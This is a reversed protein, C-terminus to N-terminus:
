ILSMQTFAPAFFAFAGHSGLNRDLSASYGSIWSEGGNRSTGLFYPNNGIYIPEHPAVIYKFGMKEMQSSSIKKRYRPVIGALPKSYGLNKAEELVDSTARGSVPLLVIKYKQGAILQQAEYRDHKLCARAIGGVRYNAEEIEQEGELNFGTIMFVKHGNKNTEFILHNKEISSLLGARKEVDLM